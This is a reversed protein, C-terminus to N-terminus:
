PLEIPVVQGLSFGIEVDARWTLEDGEHVTIMGGSGWSTLTEGSELTTPCGMLDASVDSPLERIPTAVRSGFDLSYELVRSTGDLPSQNDFLLLTGDPTITPCHPGVDLGFGEGEITWDGGFGLHNLTEGTTADVEILASQVAFSMWYSDRAESYSLGNAHTWDFGQPYFGTDLLEDKNWPFHDWASWFLESEGDPHLIRLSDGVVFGEDEVLRVDAQLYALRGDDHMLFFHHGLDTEHEAVLEGDWAHQHVSGDGEDKDTDQVNHLPLGEQVGVGTAASGEDLGSYWVVEGTEDLVFTWSLAGVAALLMPTPARDGTSVEFSPLGRPLLGTPATVVPADGDPGTVTVRVLENEHPGVILAEGDGEVTGSDGDTEWRVTDASGEWSVRLVTAIDTASVVVGYPDCGLLLSLLM